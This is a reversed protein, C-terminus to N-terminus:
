YVQDLFIQALSSASYPHSLSIFHAYKSMRDIIVWVVEKGNSKPLGEIFDMSISEWVKSPIPLPQLLGPSAM